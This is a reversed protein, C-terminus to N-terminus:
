MCIHSVLTSNEETKSYTKKLPARLRSPRLSILWAPPLEALYGTFVEMVDEFMLLSLGTSPADMLRGRIFDRERLLQSFTVFKRCDRYKEWM